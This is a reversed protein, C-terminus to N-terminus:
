RNPSTDETGFQIRSVSFGVLSLTAVAELDRRQQWALNWEQLSMKLRSVWEKTEDRM